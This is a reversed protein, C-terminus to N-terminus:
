SMFNRLLNAFPWTASQHTKQSIPVGSTRMQYKPPTHVTTPQPIPSVVTAAMKSAKNARELMAMGNTDTPSQRLADFYGRCVHDCVSRAILALNHATTDLKSATVPRATRRYM